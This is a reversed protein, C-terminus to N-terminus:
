DASELYMRLMEDGTAIRKRKVPNLEETLLEPEHHYYHEEIYKTSTDVNKALLQLPVKNALSNTIYTHRLSYYSFNRGTDCELNSIAIIADWADSWIRSSFPEGTQQNCFLLDSPSNYTSISMLSDVIIGCECNCVYHKGTKNNDSEVTILRYQRKDRGKNRPNTRIDRWRLKRAAGVRIGSALLLEIAYAIIIKHVATTRRKCPADKWKNLAKVFAQLEEDRFHNRRHKNEKPPVKIEPFDPLQSIARKEKVAISKLVAKFTSLEAKISTKTKPVKGGNGRSRWQEYEMFADRRIQDVSTSPGLFLVLKECRGKLVRFTEPTVGAHPSSSITRRKGELFIETIEKVLLPKLAENRQIKHRINLYEEEAMSKAKRFDRTKLSKRIRFGEKGEEDWFYFQWFKAQTGGRRYIYCYQCEFIHTKDLILRGSKGTPSM